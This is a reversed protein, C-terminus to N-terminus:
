SLPTIESFEGGSYVKYRLGEKKYITLISDNNSDVLIGHSDFGAYLSSMFRKLMDCSSSRNIIYYSIGNLEMAEGPLTMIYARSARLADFHSFMIAMADCLKIQALASDARATILKLLENAGIKETITRFVGDIFIKQANIRGLDGTSYGARYRVFTIADDGLLLNEGEKLDIPYIDRPFNSPINIYIGGLADVYESFDKTSMALYGDLRLGLIDEVTNKLRSAAERGDLGVSRSSAYIRNIKGYNGNYFVFTDRPIQVISLRSLGPSFSVVSISDSNEAADDLGVILYNYSGDRAPDNKSKSASLFVTVALPALLFLCIIRKM